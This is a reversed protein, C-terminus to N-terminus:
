DILVQDYVGRTGPIERLRLFTRFVSDDFDVADYYNARSLYFDTDASEELNRMALVFQPANGERVLEWDRKILSALGPYYRFGENLGSRITPYRRLLFHCYGHFTFVQASDRLKTDLEDKLNNIFTLVLRGNEQAAQDLVKRFLTTKGTGPGAVVLKRRSDSLLIKQIAAELRETPDQDPPM